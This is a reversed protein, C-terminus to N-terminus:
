FNGGVYLGVSNGSVSEGSATYDIGTLRLGVIGGTRGNGPFLYDIQLVAGTADDFKVDGNALDGSASLKPNIHRTVGLGLRLGHRVKEGFQFNYIGVIGLPFRTFSFKQNEAETGTYKWGITTEVGFKGSDSMFAMGGALVIGDGAKIKDSGGGVFYTTVLTDGGFEFGFRGVGDFKMAMSTTPIILSSFFLALSVSFIKLSHHRM